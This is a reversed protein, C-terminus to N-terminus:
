VVYRDVRVKNAPYPIRLSVLTGNLRLYDQTLKYKKRLQREEGYHVAGAGSVILMNGGLGEICLRTTSWLGYGRGQDKKSSLGEMAQSIAEFDEDISKGARNLSGRITIGDDFFTIEAFGKKKYRQAMVMAENFESHEYINTILEWILYKFAGEGGYDEGNNHFQFIPDVIKDTDRQKKPLLVLPIYTKASSIAMPKWDIMVSIYNKVEEKMPDLIDFEGKVNRLLYGLPLLTTPYIWNLRRIDLVGTAFAKRRLECYEMYEKVLEQDM